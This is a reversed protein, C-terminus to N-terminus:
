RFSPAGHPPAWQEAGSTASQSASNRDIVPVTTLGSVAFSIALLWFAFPSVGRPKPNFTPAAAPLGPQESFVNPCVPEVPVMAQASGAVSVMQTTSVDRGARAM